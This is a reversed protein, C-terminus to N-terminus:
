HAGEGQKRCPGGISLLRLMSHPVLTPEGVSEQIWLGRHAAGVLCGEVDPESLPGGDKLSIRVVRGEYEKHPPETGPQIGAAGKAAGTRTVGDLVESRAWEDGIRLFICAVPKERSQPIGSSLAGILVSDPALAIWAGFNKIGAESGPDLRQQQMWSNGARVFFFVSGSSRSSGDAGTAGIMLADGQLAVSAGFYDSASGDAAVLQGQHVWRDNERVFFHVSGSDAGQQDDYPMGVVALEGQVQVSYLFYDGDGAVLRAVEDSTPPPM